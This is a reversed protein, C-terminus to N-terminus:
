KCEDYVELIKYLNYCDECLTTLKIFKGRNYTGNCKQNQFSTFYYQAREYNHNVYINSSPTTSTTPSPSMTWPRWM